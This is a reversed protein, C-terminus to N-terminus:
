YYYKIPKITKINSINTFDDKWMIPSDILKKEPSRVSFILLFVIFITFVIVLIVNKDSIDNM